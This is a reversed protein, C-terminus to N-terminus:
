DTAIIAQFEALKKGEVDRLILTHQEIEYSAVKNMADIFNAEQTMIDEPSNCMKRTTALPSITIKGDNEKWSGQYRNCGSSGTLKGAESIRMTIKTDRILSVLANRGNNYSQLQWLNGRLKAPPNKAFVLRIEKEDDRFIIKNNNLEYSTVEGLNKFYDREQESLGQYGCARLTTAGPNISIQSENKRTYSANFFNCGSYGRLKGSDFILTPEHGSYPLSKEGNSDLYNVLIWSSSDMDLSVQKIRQSYYNNNSQTLLKVEQSSVLNVESFSLVLLLCTGISQGIKLFM